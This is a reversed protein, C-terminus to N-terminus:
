HNAEIMEEKLIEPAFRINWDHRGFKWHDGTHAFPDGPFLWYGSEHEMSLELFPGIEGEDFSNYLAGPLHCLNIGFTRAYRMQQVGRAEYTALLVRDEEDGLARFIGRYYWSEPIGATYFAHFLGPAIKDIERRGKMTLDYIADELAEYYGPLLGNRMLFDFRATQDVALANDYLGARRLSRGKRKLWESWAINEFAYNETVILEKHGYLEFDWLYGKMTDPYDKALGAIVKAPDLFVDRFQDPDFPSPIAYTKGAGDVLATEHHTKLWDERLPVFGGLLVKVGHKKAAELNAALEKKYEDMKAADDRRKYLEETVMIYVLNIGTEALQGFREDAINEKHPWQYYLSKVPGEIFAPTSPEIEPLEPLEVYANEPALAPIERPLFKMDKPKEVDKMPVVRRISVMDQVAYEGRAIQAVYGCFNEEFRANAALEYPPASPKDSWVGTYGNMNFMRRPAVIVHGDGAKGAVLVAYDRPEAAFSGEINREPSNEMKVMRMATPKAKLPIELDKIQGVQLSGIRGGYLPEDIGASLPTGPLVDVLPLNLFYSAPILTSKYGQPDMVRDGEIRVKLGLDDLVKNMVYNDTTGGPALLVLTGGGKVFDVLLAAEQLNMHATSPGPHSGGAVMIVDYDDPDAQTLSPHWRRYHFEAGADEFHDYFPKYLLPDGLRYDVLLVQTAAVAPVALATILTCVAVLRM